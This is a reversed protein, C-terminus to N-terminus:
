NARNNRLTSSSLLQDCSARRPFSEEKVVGAEGLIERANDQRHRTAVIPSQLRGVSVFQSDHYALSMTSSNSHQVYHM